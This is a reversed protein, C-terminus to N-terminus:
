SVAGPIRLDRRMKKVEAHRETIGIDGLGAPDLGDVAAVFQKETKDTLIL